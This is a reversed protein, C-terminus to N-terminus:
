HPSVHAQLNRDVICAIVPTVAPVLVAWFAVGLILALLWVAVADSAVPALERSRRRDYPSKDAAMKADRGHPRAADKITLL